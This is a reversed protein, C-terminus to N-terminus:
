GQKIFLVLIAIMMKGKEEWVDTKDYSTVEFITRVRWSMTFVLMRSSDFPPDLGVDYSLM